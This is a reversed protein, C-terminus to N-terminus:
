CSGTSAGRGGAEEGWVWAERPFPTPLAPLPQMDAGKMRGAGGGGAGQAWGQIGPLLIPSPVRTGRRHACSRKGSCGPSPPHRPREPQQLLVGCVPHNLCATHKERNRLSLLALDACGLDTDPSPRSGPAPAAEQQMSTCLLGERGRRLLPGLEM